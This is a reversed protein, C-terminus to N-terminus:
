ILHSTDTQGAHISFGIVRIRMSKKGRASNARACAPPCRAGLVVAAGCAAGAVLALKTSTFPFFNSGCSREPIQILRPPFRAKPGGFLQGGSVFAPSSM